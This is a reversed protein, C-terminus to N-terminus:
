TAPRWRKWSRLDREADRGPRVGHRRLIRGAAGRRERQAHAAARPHAGPRGAEPVVLYPGVPCFTRYSKGKYFQTQPLQVDRASVDNAVVLAGIWRDLTAAEVTVPAAIPAGIVLGLEIEYDLLRVHPPRVIADYPGTISASAKRFLM